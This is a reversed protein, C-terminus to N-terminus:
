DLICFTLYMFYMCETLTLQFSLSDACMSMCKLDSTQALLYLQILCKKKLSLAHLFEHLFIQVNLYLLDWATCMMCYLLFISGLFCM